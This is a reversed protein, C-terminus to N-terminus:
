EETITIEHYADGEHAAWGIIAEPGGHLRWIIERWETVGPAADKAEQESGFTGVPESGYELDWWETTSRDLRYRVVARTNAAIKADAREARRLEWRAVARSLRGM